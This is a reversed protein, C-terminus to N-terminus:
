AMICVWILARMVSLRWFWWKAKYIHVFDINQSLVSKKPFVFEFFVANKKSKGNIFANSKIHDYSVRQMGWLFAYILWIPLQTQTDANM